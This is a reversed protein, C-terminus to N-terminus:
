LVTGQIATGSSKCKESAETGANLVRQALFSCFQSELVHLSIEPNSPPKKRLLQSGERSCVQFTGLAAM